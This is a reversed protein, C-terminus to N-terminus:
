DATSFCRTDFNYEIRDQEELIDQVVIADFPDVGREYLLFNLEIDRIPENEKITQRVVTSDVQSM